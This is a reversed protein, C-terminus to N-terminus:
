MGGGSRWSRWMSDVAAQPPLRPHPVSSWQPVRM